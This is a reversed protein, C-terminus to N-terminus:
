AAGGLVPAGLMAALKAIGKATILPQAVDFEPGSDHEVTCYKHEMLGQTIKTQYAMWRGNQRYIWGEVQLRHIFKKPSQSLIKAADTLTRARDSTTAIRDLGHAKPELEAITSVQEQVKCALAKKEKESQLAVELLGLRDMTLFPNVPAANAKRECEIFYQRAEKGKENREVMALEKAMDLTIAYEKSPRGGQPNQPLNGFVEFDRGEVFEYQRIRDSIWHSFNDKNGLFAHLDRANVANVSQDGILRSDITPLQSPIAVPFAIHAPEDEIFPTPHQPVTFGSLIRYANGQLWRLLPVRHSQIQREGFLNFFETAHIIPMGHKGNVPQVGWYRPNKDLRNMINSMPLALLGSVDNLIMLRSEDSGVALKLHGGMVELSYTQFKVPTDKQIFSNV